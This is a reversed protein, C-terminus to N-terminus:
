HKIVNTDTAFMFPSNSVRGKRNNQNKVKKITTLQLQM